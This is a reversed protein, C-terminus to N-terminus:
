QVAPSQMLMTADAQLPMGGGVYCAADFAGIPTILAGTKAMGTITQQIFPVDMKFCYRVRIKLLNADQINEGSSGGVATSRWMLRSNPIVTKTQGGITASEGFDQFAASTPNLVTVSVVAPDNVALLAQARALLYNAYSQGGKMNYQYLPALGKAIGDKISSVSANNLTGDRVGLFTANDLTSKAMFVLSFQIAGLVLLLLAPLVIIFEAMSQGRQRAMRQFRTLARVRSSALQCWM